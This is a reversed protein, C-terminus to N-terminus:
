RELGPSPLLRAALLDQFGAELEAAVQEAVSQAAGPRDLDPGQGWGALYAESESAGERLAVADILDQFRQSLPVRAVQDGDLAEVLSPIQRWHIVRYRAMEM